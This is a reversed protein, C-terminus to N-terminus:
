LTALKGSLNYERVSFPTSPCFTAISEETLVDPCYVSKVTNWPSSPPEGGTAM